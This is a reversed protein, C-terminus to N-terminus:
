NPAYFELMQEDSLNEMGAAQRARELGKRAIDILEQAAQKWAEESQSMSGIRSIAEQAKQGEIETIQGGGKLGAFAEMFTKGLIQDMLTQFGAQESGPWPIGVKGLAGMVSPGGEGTDPFGVMSPVAPHNMARTVLSIISNADEEAKPLAARAETLTTARDKAVQIQAQREAEQEVTLPLPSRIGTRPNIQMGPSTAVASPVGSADTMGPMFPFQPNGGLRAGLSGDPNQLYVGDATTVTKPRRYKTEEKFKHLQLPYPMPLQEGEPGIGGTNFWGEAAARDAVARKATAQQAEFEAQKRTEEREAQQLQLAQLNRALRTNINGEYGQTFAPGAAAWGRSRQSIDTTPAGGAMLAGGLNMLGRWAAQQRDQPTIGLLGYNTAM